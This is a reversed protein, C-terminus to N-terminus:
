SDVPSGLEGTWGDQKVKEWWRRWEADGNGRLEIGGLVRFGLLGVYALAEADTRVARLELGGEEELCFVTLGIVADPVVVGGQVRVNESELHMGQLCQALPTILTATDGGARLDNELRCIIVCLSELHLALQELPQVQPLLDRWGSKMKCALLWLTTAAEFMTLATPWGTVDPNFLKPSASTPEFQTNAYIFQELTIYHHLAHFLHTYSYLLEARIQPTCAQPTLIALLHLRPRHLLSTAVFFQESNMLIDMQSSKSLPALQAHFRRFLDDKSSLQGDLSPQIPFLINDRPIISFISVLRSHLKLLEPSVFLKLLCSPPLKHHRKMDLILDNFFCSRPLRAAIGTAPKLRSLDIHQAFDHMGTVQYVKMCDAIHWAWTRQEEKQEESMLLGKSSCDPDVHFQLAFYVKIALGFIFGSFTTQGSDSHM